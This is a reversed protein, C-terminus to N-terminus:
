NIKLNGFKDYLTKYLRLNVEKVEKSTIIPTLIILDIALSTLANQRHEEEM